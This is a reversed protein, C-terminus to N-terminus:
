RELLSSVKITVTLIVMFSGDVCGSVLYQGTPDIQLLTVRMNHMGIQKVDLEVKKDPTGSVSSSTHLPILMRYIKGISTGTVAFLSPSTYPSLSM